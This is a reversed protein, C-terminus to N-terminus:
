VAAVVILRQGELLRELDEPDTTLVVVPRPMRVAAAAVLADVTRDKGDTAGLLRGADEAHAMTLPEHDLRSLLWRVRAGGPRDRFVEAVTVLTVRPDVDLQRARDLWWRVETGDRAAALVAGSDLLLSAFPLPGTV